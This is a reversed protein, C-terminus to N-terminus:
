RAVAGMRHMDYVAALNPQAASRRETLSARFSERDFVREQAIQAEIRRVRLLNAAFSSFMTGASAM